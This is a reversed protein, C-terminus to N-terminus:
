MLERDCQSAFRQKPQVRERNDGEPNGRTRSFRSFLLNMKWTRSIGKFKVFDTVATPFLIENATPVMSRSRTNYSNCFLFTLSYRCSYGLQTVARFTSINRLYGIICLRTDILFIIIIITM